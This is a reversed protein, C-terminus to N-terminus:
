HLPMNDLNITEGNYHDYKDYVIDWTGDKKLVSISFYKGSLRAADSYCLYPKCYENVDFYEWETTTSSVNKTQIISKPSIDSRENMSKSYNPISFSGKFPLVNTSHGNENISASSGGSVVDYTWNLAQPLLKDYEDSINRMVYGKCFDYTLLQTFPKEEDPIFYQLSANDIWPNPAYLTVEGYDNEWSYGAIDIAFTGNTCNQYAVHPDSTGMANQIITEFPTLHKNPFLIEEASTDALFSHELGLGKAIDRLALTVFDYYGYEPESAINYSFENLCDENYVIQIDILDFFGASDIESVYHINNNFHNEKLVTYKVNTSPIAFMNDWESDFNLIRYRVNSLVKNSGFTRIKDVSM